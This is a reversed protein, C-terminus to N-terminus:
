FPKQPLAKPKTPKKKEEVTYRSLQLCSRPKDKNM